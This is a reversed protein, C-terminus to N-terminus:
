VKNFFSDELQLCFEVCACAAEGCGLSAECRCWLLAAYSTCQTYLCQSSLVTQWFCLHLTQVSHHEDVAQAEVLENLLDRQMGHLPTLQQAADPFGERLQPLVGQLTGSKGHHRGTSFCHLQTQRVLKPLKRVNCKCQMQCRRSSGHFARIAAHVDQCCIHAGCDVHHMINALTNHRKVPAESHPHMIM